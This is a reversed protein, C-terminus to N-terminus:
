VKPVANPRDLGSYVRNGSKYCIDRIQWRDM